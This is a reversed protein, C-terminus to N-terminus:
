FRFRFGTNDIEVKLEEVKIGIELLGKGFTREDNRM